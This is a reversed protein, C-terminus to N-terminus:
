WLLGPPACPSITIEEEKSVINGNADKIYMYLKCDMWLAGYLHGEPVIEDYDVANLIFVNNESFEQVQTIIPEAGHADSPREYVFKYEYPAQGGIGEICVGQNDFDFNFSEYRSNIKHYMKFMPTDSEYPEVVKYKWITHTINSYLANVKIKVNYEGAEDFTYTLSNNEDTSVLVDNILLEYSMVPSGSNVFTTFTVPEGVIAMGSLYDAYCNDIFLDSDFWHGVSEYPYIKAHYRQINTADMISLKGDEDADALYKQEVTFEELEVLYRMLITADIIEIKGNVDVDGITARPASKASVNVVYVGMLLVLVLILCMIKKM